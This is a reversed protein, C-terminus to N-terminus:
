VDGTKNFIPEGTTHKWGNDVNRSNWKNKHDNQM